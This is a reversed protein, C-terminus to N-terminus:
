CSARRGGGAWQCDKSLTNGETKVFHCLNAARIGTDRIFSHLSPSTFLEGWGVRRVFWLPLVQAEERLSTCGRQEGHKIYTIALSYTEM